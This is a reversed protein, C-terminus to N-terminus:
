RPGAAARTLVEAELIETLQPWPPGAVGFTTWYARQSRVLRGLGGAALTIPIRRAVRRVTGGVGRGSPRIGAMTLLTATRIADLLETDFHEADAGFVTEAWPLPSLLWRLRELGSGLDTALYRRNATHWLLVADAFGLGDCSMHLTIGGVTARQWVSLSGAIRLRGAHIGVASLADFWADILEVHQDVDAIRQVCSLNVFSTLFGERLRGDDGRDGTFRVVPQPLFGERWVRNAGDKLWPDLGQVASILLDTDRGWRIPLLPPRHIGHLALVQQMAHVIAAPSPAQRRPAAHRAKRPRMALESGDVDLRWRRAFRHELAERLLQPFPSPESM